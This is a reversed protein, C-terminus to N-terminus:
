LPNYDIFMIYNEVEGIILFGFGFFVSAIRKM